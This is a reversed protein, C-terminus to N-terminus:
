VIGLLNAWIHKLQRESLYQYYHYTELRKGSVDEGMQARKGVAQVIHYVLHLDTLRHAALHGPILVGPHQSYHHAAQTVDALLMDYDALPFGDYACVLFSEMINAYEHHLSDTNDQISRVKEYQDNYDSREGNYLVVRPPHALLNLALTSTSKSQTFSHPITQTAFPTRHYRAKCSSDCFKKDARGTLPEECHLCTPQPLLQTM